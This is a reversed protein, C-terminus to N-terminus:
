TPTISSGSSNASFTTLAIDMEESPPHPRSILVNEGSSYRKFFWFGPISALVCGLALVTFEPSAAISYVVIYLSIGCLVIAPLPFFPMKFKREADPDKYRLYITATSTTAAFIWYAPGFYDLMTSYSSGPLVILICCWFGQLLVSLFPVGQKNIKSLFHPAMKARSVAFTARSGTLVTGYYAGASSLAVCLCIFGGFVNGGIGDGFDIAVASSDIIEDETLVSFYSVNCLIYIVLVLMVSGFVASPLNKEYDILEESLFVLGSWGDFAWLCPILALVIGGHKTGEFSHRQSLNDEIPQNHSGLYAFGAICIVAVVVLKIATLTNVVTTSEKSGFLNIFTFSVALSLACLKSYYSNEYTEHGMGTFVRVIYNGFVIANIALAGPFSVWFM